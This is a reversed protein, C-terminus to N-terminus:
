FPYGLGLSFEYVELMDYNVISLYNTIFGSQINGVTLEATQKNASSFILSAVLLKEDGNTEDRNLDAIWVAKGVKDNVTAAPRPEGSPYNGAKLLIHKINGDSPYARTGQSGGGRPRLFDTFKFTKKFSLHIKSPEIYSMTFNYPNADLIIKFNQRADFIEDTSIKGNGNVDMYVQNSCIWFDISKDRLTFAGKRSTCSTPTETPVETADQPAQIPVPLGYFFKFAPYTVETASKPVIFEDDGIGGLGCTGVFGTAACDAIGFIEKHADNFNQIDAILVIGSGKDLYRLLNEKYASIDRNGFIVLVDSPPIAELSAAFVDVTINRQNIKMKGFWSLLNSIQDSDCACAVSVKSKITGKNESWYILNREPIFESIFNKLSTSDFALGHTKGLGDITLIMDRAKIIVSADTWKNQYSLTPFFIGFAVILIVMATILEIAPIQGKKM